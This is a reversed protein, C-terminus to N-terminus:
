PGERGRLNSVVGHLTRLERSTPRARQFLHKLGVNLLQAVPVLALSLVAARDARYLRWMALLMTAALVHLM